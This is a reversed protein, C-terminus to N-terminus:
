AFRKRAVGLVGLVGTALLALSSPEPTPTLSGSSALDFSGSGFYIGTYYYGGGAASCFNQNNSTCVGGGAYNVNNIGPINIQFFGNQGGHILQEFTATNGGLGSSSLTDFLYSTGSVTASIVGGTFLGTTEDFTVTGSATGPALVANFQYSQITDAKASAAFLCLVVAVFFSLRM